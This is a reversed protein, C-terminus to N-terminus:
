NIKGELLQKQTMSLDGKDMAGASLPFLVMPIIFIRCSSAVKKLLNTPQHHFMM